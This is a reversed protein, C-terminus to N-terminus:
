ESGGELRQTPRDEPGEKGRLVRRVLELDVRKDVDIGIEPYPSTVARARANLLGSVRAEAEAVSLTHLAFKVIFKLGLVRSLKLPSKRLNYGTQFLDFNRIVAEPTILGINGGTFTGEKLRAYTRKTEPYAREIVEKEIISYHVDAECKACRKLFDEVAEATLLPIDCSSLVVRPSKSSSTVYDLGARVNEVMSDSAVLVKDIAETWPEDQADRPVLAVIRDVSPAARFADIMYEIMAKGDILVLAKSAAQRGAPLATEDDLGSVTGGGLIITDFM